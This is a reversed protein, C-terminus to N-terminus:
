YFKVLAIVEYCFSDFRHGHLFFALNLARLGKPTILMICHAAAGSTMM